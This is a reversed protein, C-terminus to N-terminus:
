DCRIFAVLEFAPSDCVLVDRLENLQNRPQHRESKSM